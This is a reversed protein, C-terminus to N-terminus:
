EELWSDGRGDQGQAEQMLYSSSFSPLPLQSSGHHCRTPRPPSQGGSDSPQPFPLPPPILGAARSLSLIWAETPTPTDCPGGGGRPLPGLMTDNVSCLSQAEPARTKFDVGVAELTRPEDGLRQSGCSGLTCALSGLEVQPECSASAGPVPGPSFCCSPM